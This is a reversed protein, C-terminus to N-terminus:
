GTPLGKVLDIKCSAPGALTGGYYPPILIPALATKLLTAALYDSLLIEVILEVAAAFETHVTKGFVGSGASKKYEWIRLKSIQRLQLLTKQVKAMNPMIANRNTNRQM